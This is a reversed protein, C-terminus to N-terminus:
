RTGAALALAIVAPLQYIGYGYPLLVLAVLGTLIAGALCLWRQARRGHLLVGLASPAISAVLIPPWIGTLSEGREIAYLLAAVLSLGVALGALATRRATTTAPLVSPTM